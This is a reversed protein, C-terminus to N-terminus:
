FKVTKLTINSPTLTQLLRLIQFYNHTKRKEKFGNFKKSAGRFKRDSNKDRVIIEEAELIRIEVLLKSVKLFYDFKLVEIESKSKM